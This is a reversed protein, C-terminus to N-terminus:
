HHRLKHLIVAIFIALLSVAVGLLLSPLISSTGTSSSNVQSALPMRAPTPTFLDKPNDATASALVPTNTISLTPLPTESLEPTDLITDSYWAGNSGASGDTGWAVLLITGNVVVPHASFPDFGNGGVGDEIRPGQVVAEANTWGNGKWLSYWMGRIDDMTREGFFAYLQHSSDIVFSVGGNTGVHNASLRAPMSWTQGNDESVRWYFGNINSHHYSVIIKGMYEIVSPTIIGPEDLPVLQTSKLNDVKLNAYYGPGGSGDDKFTSWVAHLQGTESAYIKPFVVLTKPDKTLYLPISDAWSQGGDTSYTAYTGNGEDLGSYIVVLNGLLDAGISAVYSIGPRRPQSQGAVFVPNSWSQAQGASILPATTHYLDTNHAQILLHVRGQQDYYVDTLYLDGGDPDVVIDIPMTWGRNIQWQRYVVVRQSNENRLDSPQDNFAHVTKSRDAVLFPAEETSNEYSPIRQQPSWSISAQASVSTANSGSCILALMLLRLLQEIIKSRRNMM